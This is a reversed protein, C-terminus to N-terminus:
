LRSELESSARSDPEAQLKELAALKEVLVRHRASAYLPSAAELAHEATEYYTDDPTDNELHLQTTITHTVM